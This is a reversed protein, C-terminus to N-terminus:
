KVRAYQERFAIVFARMYETSDFRKRIDPATRWNVAVEKRHGTEDIMLLTPPIFKWEGRTAEPEQNWRYWATKLEDGADMCMARVIDRIFFFHDNTWRKYYTFNKGVEYPDIKPDALDDAAYQDYDKATAEIFPNTSPYFSRRIPVRRLAYKEPGGPTGPKFAWLKQGDDSLIFEIFHLAIARSPAGRLLSIPDVSVSTGGVPTVFRMREHGDPARSAQAQFRGYFDIAMGVAADGTSVDIPVQPAADTFYRANGGIKQLLTMGNLFGQELSAEYPKLGPPVDGRQYATGKTKAYADIAAENAAIQDNSYGAANVAIHMQQQVLMEFAKAISGSKTPDALGVQGFYKFNSLDVWESPPTDIHLDSLRDMNYVIGFTSVVNGMVAPSRWIEGGYNTPIMVVGNQKFLTPPLEDLVPVTFGSRFAGSHDFEGGGFFLDIKCGIADPSDVNRYANWVSASAPDTPAAARTLDDSAGAPWAKGQATWWARTAAAYESALYRSIETTGGIDRWDIKVPTGYHTEHWKSFALAFEFRIAENHPSVIVLVPDGPKWNGQPPPQRFIFPLAIIAALLMLISVNKAM